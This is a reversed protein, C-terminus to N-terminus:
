FLIYYSGLHHFKQVTKLTPLCTVNYLIGRAEEDSQSLFAVQLTNDTAPHSLFSGM